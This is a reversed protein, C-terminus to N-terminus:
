VPAPAEEQGRAILTESVAEGLFNQCCKYERWGVPFHLLFSARRAECSKAGGVLFWPFQEPQILLIFTCALFEQLLTLVWSNIFAAFWWWPPALDRVKATEQCGYCRVHMWHNWFSAVLSCDPKAGVIYFCIRIHWEHKFGKVFHYQLNRKWNCFYFCPLSKGVATPATLPLASSWVWLVSGWQIFGEAGEREHVQM